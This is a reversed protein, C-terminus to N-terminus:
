QYETKKLFSVSQTILTLWEQKYDLWNNKM